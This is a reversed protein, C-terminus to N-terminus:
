NASWACRFKHWFGFSSLVLYPLLIEKLLWLTNSCASWYFMVTSVLAPFGGSPHKKQAHKPHKPMVLQDEEETPLRKCCLEIDDESTITSCCGCKCKCFSCQSGYLDPLSFPIQSHPPGLTNFVYLENQLM